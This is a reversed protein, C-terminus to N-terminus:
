IMIGRKSLEQSLYQNILYLEDANLARDYVLLYHITHHLMGGGTSAPLYMYDWSGKDTWAGHESGHEPGNITLNRFTGDVYAHPRVGDQVLTFIHPDSENESSLTSNRNDFRWRYPSAESSVRARGYLNRNNVGLGFFLNNNWGPTGVLWLAGYSDSSNVFDITAVAIITGTASPINPLRVYDGSATLNIGTSTWTGQGLIGNNGNGSYDTIITGTGEDFKYHGKLGYTLLHVEGEGGTPGDFTIIPDDWYIETNDWYIAERWPFGETTTTSFRLEFLAENMRNRFRYFFRSDTVGMVYGNYEILDCYRINERYWEADEILDEPDPYYKNARFIIEHPEIFNDGKLFTVDSNDDREIGLARTRFNLNEPHYLHDLEYWEVGESPINLRFRIM